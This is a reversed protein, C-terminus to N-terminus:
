RQLGPPLRIGTSEVEYIQRGRAQAGEPGAIGAVAPV